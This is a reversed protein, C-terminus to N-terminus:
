ILVINEFLELEARLTEAVFLKTGFHVLGRTELHVSYRSM